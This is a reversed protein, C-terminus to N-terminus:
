SEANGAVSGDLEKKYAKDVLHPVHCRSFRNPGVACLNPEMACADFVLPCRKRFRCGTMVRSSEVEGELVPESRQRAKIPDPIPTSALLASTYPHKPVTFVEDTPGEEVIRGLYM